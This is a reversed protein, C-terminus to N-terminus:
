SATPTPAASGDGPHTPRGLATAVWQVVEKGSDGNTLVVIGTGDRLRSYSMARYGVPEGGHGYELDPGTGDVISGLGYFSGPSATLLQGALDPTLLGSPEGLYARRIELAVRSLDAATSWLGAAAADPRVRWGAPVPTGDAAHGRAVPRGTTDPFAQDFSSGTLGLPDLVLDRMLAAFPTGTMDELVLQVVVFHVNAKRFAAGPQGTLRVGDLLDTLAPVPAGPPEGSYDVPTLGSRHGLLHRLTVPTAGPVRWSVLYRNVDADLDLRGERALRLVALATLHKSVSGVQFVTDPTVAPWGAVLVGYGRVEVLNGGQILAVAAGPVRHEAMVALPSPIRDSGSGASAVGVSAVVVPETVVPETVVPETVVPETV